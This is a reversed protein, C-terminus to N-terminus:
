HPQCERPYWAAQVVRGAREPDSIGGPARGPQDVAGEGSARGMGRAGQAGGRRRRLWKSLYWAAGTVRNRPGGTAQGQRCPAPRGQLRSLRRRAQSRTPCNGSTMIVSSTPVGPQSSPVASASNKCCYLFGLLVNWRMCTMSPCLVTTTALSSVQTESRGTHACSRTSSTSIARVLM